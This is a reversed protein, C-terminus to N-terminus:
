LGPEVALSAVATLCGGVKVLSLGCLLLSGPCDFIYIFQFFMFCLISGVGANPETNRPPLRFTQKELLAGLGPVVTQLNSKRPNDGTQPLQPPFYWRIRGKARELGKQVRYPTEM